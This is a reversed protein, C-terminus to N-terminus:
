WNVVGGTVGLTHGTIYDADDSALFAVAAGFDQPEGHRGLPLMDVVKLREEDFSRGSVEAKQRIAAWQMETRMYGPAISNVRVGHPAMELALTKTLAIVGAKSACYAAAGPVPEVGFISSTTILSGHGQDRMRRGAIHCTLYVGFLNVQTVNLFDEPPVDCVDVGEGSIGANAVALDLRGHRHDLEAVAQELDEASTVDGVQGTARDGDIRHKEALETATQLVLPNRDFLLVSWGDRLLRDAAGAGLGDAAGTVLAVRPTTPDSM